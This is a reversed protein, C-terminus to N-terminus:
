NDKLRGEREAVDIAVINASAAYLHVASIASKVAAIPFTLVCILQWLGIGFLLTPGYNFHLLYLMSYFLENGSCMVFLVPKTYYQRLIPNGSLDIAKHSQSGKMMTSHMFLWHSAIDLSMSLQFLIMYSPYFQSLVVLLCMTACRDTLMDLMAGFKSSQGLLRAAHGDLSDLLASSLYCLTARTPDYPMFWFSM